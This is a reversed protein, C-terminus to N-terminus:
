EAAQKSTARAAAINAATNWCHLASFMSATQGEVVINRRLMWLSLGPVLVCIIQNFLDASCGNTSDNILLVLLNM